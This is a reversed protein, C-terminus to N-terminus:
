AALVNPWVHFPDTGFSVPLGFQGKIIKHSALRLDEGLAVARFALYIVNLTRNGEHVILLALSDSLGFAQFPFPYGAGPNAM